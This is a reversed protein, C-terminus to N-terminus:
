KQLAFVAVIPLVYVLMHELFVNNVFIPLPGFKTWPIYYAM